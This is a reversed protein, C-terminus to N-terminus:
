SKIELTWITKACVLSGDLEVPATYGYHTCCHYGVPMFMEPCLLKATVCINVDALKYQISVSVSHLFNSISPVRM